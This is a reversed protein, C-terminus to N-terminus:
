VQASKKASWASTYTKKGIRKFTRVQVYYRKGSKLGTLKVKTAANRKVSRLKAGKM